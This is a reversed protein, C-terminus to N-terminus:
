WRENAQQGVIPKPANANSEDNGLTADAIQQLANQDRRHTTSIPLEVLDAIQQFSLEGWIRAVVIERDARTLVSLLEQPDLEDTPAGPEQSSEQFWPELSAATHHHQRRAAARALNAARRRTAVYLWAVMDEPPPDTQILAVLAEQVADDPCDCWQCALLRLVAGHDRMLQQLTTNDISPAM